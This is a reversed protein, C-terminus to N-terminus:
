NPPLLLVMKEVNFIQIKVKLKYAGIALSLAVLRGHARSEIYV